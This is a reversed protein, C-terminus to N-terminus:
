AGKSVGSSLSVRMRVARTSMPTIASVAAVKEMGAIRLM